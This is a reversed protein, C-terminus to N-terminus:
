IGAAGEKGEDGAGRGPPVPTSRELYAEGRPSLRYGVALSETLGLEKLKRVDTKFPATERGVSEALEPARVAPRQVILELTTRTWPGHRSAQDFRALRRDLEAVDDATLAAQERLAIRSDPGALHLTVRYVEGEDRQDLVKLLAAPSDFGARKAQAATIRAPDVIEVADISLEGIRSRLRGGAKVTPRRWRRFQLDIAGSEIGDLAARNLLM